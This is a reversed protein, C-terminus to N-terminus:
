WTVAGRQFKRAGGVVPDPRLPHASEVSLACLYQISCLIVRTVKSPGCPLNILLLVCLDHSVIM